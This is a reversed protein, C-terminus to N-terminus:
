PLSLEGLLERHWRINVAMRDDLIEVRRVLGTVL